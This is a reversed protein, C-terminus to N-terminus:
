AAIKTSGVSTGAGIRGAEAVRGLGAETVGERPASSAALGAVAVRVLVKLGGGVAVTTRVGASVSVGESVGVRVRTGVAVGMGESVGVEVLVGVMVSVGVM